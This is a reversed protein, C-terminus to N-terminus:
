KKRKKSLDYLGRGLRPNRSPVFLYTKKGKKLLWGSRSNGGVVKLGTTFGVQVTQGIKWSQSISAAKEVAKKPIRVREAETGLEIAQGLSGVKKKPVLQSLKKPWTPEDEEGGEPEDGLEGKALTKLSPVDSGGKEGGIKTPKLEPEEPKTKAKPLDPPPGGPSKATLGKVDPDEDPLISKMPKDEPEPAEGTEIKEMEEPDPLKGVPEEKPAEAGAAMKSASKQRRQRDKVFKDFKANTKASTPALYSLVAELTKIYELSPGSLGSVRSSWPRLKKEAFDADIAETLIEKLKKM